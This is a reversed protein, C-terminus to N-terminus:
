RAAAIAADAQRKLAEAAQAPEKLGNMVEAAAREVLTRVEQWGVLNPEPRAYPLCDFAARNFEWQEFFAQMDPHSAASKRIPLYGSGLAWRVSIEPSTFHKIFEWATREHEQTTRFVCINGGYLVTVPAEPNAQPIMAMGWDDTNAGFLAATYPRHSSSRFFFAARDRAFEERDDYTGPQIRYALDEKALTALLEFLRITPPQDFLSETDRVLEGGMSYIMGDLTSCDIDVAYASVGTREKIQRCQALFEDWTKPPSEIGAARLVRKNFYMMLVSKTFPFSYMGGDLQPYINSQLMGPFFDALDEESMGIEPDEIYPDLPVVARARAYESTMSEYGVAMAPLTRAQISVSVKRNIDTYGGLHEVKVPMGNRSSNFEDAIQGILEATELTQRDWLLAANADVPRFGTGETGQTDPPGGPVGCGTIVVALLTFGALKRYM